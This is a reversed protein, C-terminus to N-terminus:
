YCSQTGDYNKYCTKYFSNGNSDYGSYITSNGSHQITQNWSNGNADYGNQYTTNGITQSDQSWSSGTNSNYGNVQTINGYHNIDYQNGTNYDYCTKYSDSGYCQTQALVTNSCLAGVFLAFLTKKM